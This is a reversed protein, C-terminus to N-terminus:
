RNRRDYCVENSELTCCSEGKGQTLRMRKRNMTLSFCFLRTSQWVSEVDRWGEAEGSARAQAKSPKM